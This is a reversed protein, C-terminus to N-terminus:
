NVRKNAYMNQIIDRGNRVTYRFFFVEGLYTDLDGLYLYGIDYAIALRCGALSANYMDSPYIRYKHQSITGRFAYQSTCICQLVTINSTSLKLVAEYISKHKHLTSM